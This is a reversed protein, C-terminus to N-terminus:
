DDRWERLMQAPLIYEANTPNGFRTLVCGALAAGDAGYNLLEVWFEANTVSVMKNFAVSPLSDPPLNTTQLTIEAGFMM